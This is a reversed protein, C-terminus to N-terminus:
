LLEGYKIFDDVFSPSCDHYCAEVLSALPAYTPFFEKEEDYLEDRVAHNLLLSGEVGSYSRHLCGPPIELAGSAPSLFVFWHPDKWRINFLEFLRYGKIVRNYDTQHRHAYWQKLGFLGDPPSVSRGTHEVLDVGNSDPISIDQFRVGKTTRFTRPDHLKIM